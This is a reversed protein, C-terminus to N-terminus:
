KRTYNRSARVYRVAGASCLTYLYLKVPCFSLYSGTFNYIQLRGNVFFCFGTIPIKVLIMLRDNNFGYGNTSREGERRYNNMDM